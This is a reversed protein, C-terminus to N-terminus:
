TMGVLSPLALLFQNLDIYGQDRQLVENLNTILEKALSKNAPLSEGQQCAYTMLMARANGDLGTNDM